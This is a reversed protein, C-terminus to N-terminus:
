YEISTPCQEFREVIRNTDKHLLSTTLAINDIKRHRRSMQPVSLSSSFSKCIIHPVVITVWGNSILGLNGQSDRNPVIIVLIAGDIDFIRLEEIVSSTPTWKIEVRIREISQKRVSGKRWRRWWRWVPAIL